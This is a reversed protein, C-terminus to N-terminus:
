VPTVVLSTPNRCPIFAGCQFGTPTYWCEKYDTCGAADEIEVRILTVLDNLSKGTKLKLKLEADTNSADEILEFDTNDYIWNYTIPATAGFVNNVSLYFIIDEDGTTELSFSIGTINVICKNVITNDPCGTKKSHCIDLDVEPCDLKEIYNEIIAWPHTHCKIGWVLSHYEELAYKSINCKAAV